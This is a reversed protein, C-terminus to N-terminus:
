LPTLTVTDVFVSGTYWGTSIAVQASDSVPSRFDFVYPRMGPAVDAYTYLGMNQSYDAHDIGVEVVVSQPTSAAMWMTLRYMKGKTLILGKRNLQSQWVGTQVTANKIEVAFQGEVANSTTIQWSGIGSWGVPSSTEFSGNGILDGCGEDTLGDCDEDGGGCGDVAKSPMAACASWFTGSWNAQNGDPNDGPHPHLHTLCTSTGIACGASCARTAGSVCVAANSYSSTNGAPLVAGGPLVVMRLAYEGVGTAPDSQTSFKWASAVASQKQQTDTWPMPSTSDIWAKSTETWAAGTCGGQVNIINFRWVGLPLQWGAFQFDFYGNVAPAIPGTTWSPVDALLQACAQPPNAADTAPFRLRLKGPATVLDAPAATTDVVFDCARQVGTPQSGGAVLAVTRPKGDVLVDPLGSSPLWGKAGDGDCAWQQGGVPKAWGINFAIQGEAVCGFSASVKSSVVTTAWQGDISFKHVLTQTAEPSPSDFTLVVKHPGGTPSHICGLKPDCADTTCSDSDDCVSALVKHVCGNKSDCVDSTCTVGDSCDVLAGNCQGTSCKDSNTCANGDDCGASNPQHVCKGTALSCSDDTCLNADNCDIASGTCKTGVCLDNNTCADNDSCAGEAPVHLCGQLANCSDATCPNSDDCSVQGPIPGCKGSGCHASAQWAATGPCSGASCPKGDAVPLHACGQNALDCQDVTCPNNDDCNVGVGKCAGLSCSDSKTCANGDDCVVGDPKATLKCGANPDCTDLTCFVNDNCVVSIGACKSTSCKDATTCLNSDDCPASNAQHQCGAAVDCTDDTCPNGDACNAGAGAKCKSNSCSDNVTCTNGDSCTSSNALHVCGFGAACSDDTCPNVDSCDQAVAVKCKGASCTPQASYMLAQCAATGCAAGDPQNAHGCGKAPNCTDITCFEGDDCVKAAGGACAGKSCTDGVTCLSGDECVVANASHLCGAKPDCADDTCLNGDDCNKTASVCIGKACTGNGTLTLKDCSAAPGCPTSDLSTPFVCGKTPDCKDDTCTNGDKCPMPAGPQCSGAGCLDGVTCANDDNCPATNNIVTCGKAPDCGNDTCPNSDTCTLTTGAVCLGAKCADNSTCLSSDADCAAGDSSNKLGCAGTAASCATKQCATDKSTDCVVVDKTNAKCKKPNATADCVPKGNCLDGDDKCDTDVQCEDCTGSGACQGGKCTDNKTCADNDDCASGSSPSWSSTSQNPDCKFCPHGPQQAGSAQCAGAIKCQGDQLQHDCKGSTCNDSTCPLGDDCAAIPGEDVSSNCNDDINNCQENKGPNVQTNNDDCDSGTNAIYQGSPKCLCKSQTGYGDGDADVFFESCGALNDGEDVQGDCDDDANNCTETAKPTTEDCYTSWKGDTCTLNGSKCIGVGNTGSPGSYCSKTAGDACETIAIQTVAFLKGADCDTGGSLSNAFDFRLTKIPGGQTWCLNQSMDLPGTNIWSDLESLKGCVKLYKDNTSTLKSCDVVKGDPWTVSNSASFYVCYDQTNCGSTMNLANFYKCKAGDFNTSVQISPDNKSVSILWNDGYKNFGKDKGNNVTWGQTGNTKNFVWSPCQNAAFPVCEGYACTGGLCTGCQGDCGDDGCQKNDCQKKCCDVAGCFKGCGDSGCTKGVCNPVCECTGNAENCKNPSICTNNCPQGCKTSGCQKGYCGGCAMDAKDTCGNGDNDLGDSCNESSSACHDAKGYAEVVCGATGCDQVVEIAGNKYNFLKNTKGALACGKIDPNSACYHGALLNKPCGSCSSACDNDACDTKGDCDNDNGDLCTAEIFMCKCTGSMSSYNSNTVLLNNDDCDGVETGFVQLKQLSFYGDDDGDVCYGCSKTGDGSDLCSKALQDDNTKATVLEETWDTPVCVRGRLINASGDCGTASKSGFLMDWAQVWKSAIGAVYVCKDTGLCKGSFVDMNVSAYGEDLEDREGPTASKAFQSVELPYRIEYWVDKKLEEKPTTTGIAFNNTKDAVTTLYKALFNKNFTGLNEIAAAGCYTSILNVAEMATDASSYNLVDRYAGNVSTEGSADLRVFQFGAELIPVKDAGGLPAAFANQPEVCKGTQISKVPCTEVVLGIEFMDNESFGPEVGAWKFRIKVVGTKTSGAVVGPQEVAVRVLTPRNVAQASEPIMLLLTCAFFALSESATLSILGRIRPLCLM